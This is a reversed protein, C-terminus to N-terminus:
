ETIPSNLDNSNLTLLLTKIRTIKNTKSQKGKTQNATRPNKLRRIKKTTTVEDSQLKGELVKQLVSNISM